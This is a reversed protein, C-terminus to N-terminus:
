FYRPSKVANNKGNLDFSIMIEHTGWQNLMKGNLPFDFSYGASCFDKIQYAFNVGACDTTRYLGGIWFRKFLHASLNVDAILPGNATYKVLVSPKIDLVSNIKVVYGGTVYLHRQLYANGTNNDVNRKILRPISIGAYFNHQYLYAGFGFNAKTQRYSNIYNPDNVNTAILDSFDYGYQQIGGSLGLSLRLDEKNLQLQYAFNAMASFSSRSGIKDYAITTGLGIDKRM